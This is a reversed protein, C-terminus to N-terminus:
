SRARAKRTLSTYYKRFLVGLLWFSAKLQGVRQGRDARSPPTAHGESSLGKKKWLPTRNERLRRLEKLGREAQCLEPGGTGTKRKCIARRRDPLVVIPRLVRPNGVSVPSQVSRVCDTDAVGALVASSSVSSM